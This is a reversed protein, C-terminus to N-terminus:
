EKKSPQEPPIGPKTETKNEPEPATAATSVQSWLTEMHEQADRTTTATMDEIMREVQQWIQATEREMGGQNWEVRCDATPMAPDRLIVIDTASQLRAAMQELKRALTGAVSEHVTITLKPEKMMTESCRLAIEEVVAQANHALAHGAVKRAIALAAKPMQEQLTLAMKRYDNFVPSVSKAFKEVAETLKRDVISQENEAQKRGEQEGALFGKQYSAQEAAKLEAESFTPPPPPADEKGKGSPKFPPKDRSVIAITGESLDRFSFREVQM